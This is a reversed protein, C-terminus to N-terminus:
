TWWTIKVLWLALLVQLIVICWFLIRFKGKITKHRFFQMAVYAGVSGGVASLGHLVLEPVRSLAARARAKDYGYYGFAVVNATLLWSVLWYRGDRQGGLGWWLLVTGALILLAAVLFHFAVPRRRQYAM